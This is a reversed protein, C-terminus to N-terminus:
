QSFTITAGTSTKLVSPDVGEATVLTKPLFSINTQGVNKNLVKFSIVAVTGTGKKAPSSAPLILAYSIRGNKQDITKMLVSPDDFFDGPIIDIGGIVKPDYAMELQVATVNNEETSLDVNISGSNSDLVLSDPSLYINTKQVSPIAAVEEVEPSSEEAVEKNKGMATIFLLTTLVFLIVILILTKKSM